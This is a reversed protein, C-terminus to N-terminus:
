QKGAAFGGMFNEVNEDTGRTAGFTGVLGSPYNETDPVGTQRVGTFLAQWFGAGGNEGMATVGEIHAYFRRDSGEGTEAHTRAVNSGDPSGALGNLLIEGALPEGGSVITHVRGTVRGKYGPYERTVGHEATDFNATLTATATFLNVAGAKSHLGAAPGEYSATGTLDNLHPFDTEDPRRVNGTEGAEWVHGTIGFTGLQGDGSTDLWYGFGRWDTHDVGDLDSWIHAHLTGESLEAGTFGDLAPLAVPTVQDVTGVAHPRRDPLTLGTDFTTLAHDEDRLFVYKRGNPSQPDAFVAVHGHAHFNDDDTVVKGYQRVAFSEFEQTNASTDTLSGQYAIARPVNYDIGVEARVTTLGDAVLGSAKTPPIIEATVRGQTNLIELTDGTRRIQVSCFPGSAPCSFRVRGEDYHEGPHVRIGTIEGDEISFELNDPTLTRSWGPLQITRPEPEALPPQM